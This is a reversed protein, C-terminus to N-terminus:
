FSSKKYFCLSTLFSIAPKRSTKKGSLFDAEKESTSEKTDPRWSDSSIFNDIKGMIWYGLIGVMLFGIIIMIETM